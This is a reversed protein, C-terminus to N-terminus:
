ILVTQQGKCAIGFFLFSIEITLLFMSSKQCSVAMMAKAYWLCLCISYLLTPFFVYLAKVQDGANGTINGFASQASGIASDAYGKLTSSDKDSM